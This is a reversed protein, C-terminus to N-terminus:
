RDFKEHLVWELTKLDLDKAVIKKNEDLLYVRPTMFVDYIMVLEGYNKGVYRANIWDTYGNDMVFKKWVDFDNTVTVAVVQIGKSKYKEYLKHLGPIYKKCHECDASWLFLITAKAHITDMNILKGTNMDALPVIPIKKGPLLKKMTEVKFKLRQKFAEDIPIKGSLFYKEAIAIFAKENAWKGSTEFNKLMLRALADLVKPNEGAKALIKLADATISDSNNYAVQTFFKNLKNALITTHLLRADSFDIYDFFHNKYYLYKNMRLASDKEAKTLNKPITFTDPVITEQMSYLMKAFFTGKAKKIYEQRKNNMWANFKEIDTNIAKVSDPNNHWKMMRKSFERMKNRNSYSFKQYSLFLENEKSNEVKATNLFDSADATISFQKNNDDLIIEIFSKKPLVIFYTGTPTISDTKFVIDGNNNTKLTDLFITKQLYHAGLVVDKDEWGKIHLTISTGKNNNNQPNNKEKQSFCSTTLLFIIGIGGILIRKM